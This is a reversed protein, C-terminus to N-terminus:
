QEKGSRLWEVAEGATETRHARAVRWGQARARNQLLIPLAPRGGNSCSSGGCLPGIWAMTKPAGM